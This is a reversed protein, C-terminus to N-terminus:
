GRPFPLLGVPGEVTPEVSQEGGEEQERAFGALLPLPPPPKAKNGAIFRQAIRAGGELANHGRGELLGVIRQM